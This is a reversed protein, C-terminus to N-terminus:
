RLRHAHLDCYLASHERGAEEISLKPANRVAAESLDARRRDDNVLQGVASSLAQADAPPVMVGNGCLEAIERCGGVDTAIFPLGSATAELLSIPFGEWASSMLLLDSRDLLGPVDRRNGLLKVQDELGSRLILGKLHAVLSRPGEGVISVRLRDRTSNPLLAVAEILLEYNKQEFVRGVCIAEIISHGSPRRVRPAFNSLRVGNRVVTVRRGTFDRVHSACIQSIGVYQEVLSNLFKYSWKPLRTISNHHTHVRPVKLFAGFLIGATLHSHYIQVDNAKCFRWVRWAGLAPNKRSADGIFFHDVGAMQLESLFQAEFEPSRGHESAHALFAIVPRHGIRKLEIALDKVYVEAGGAAPASIVHLVSLSLPL